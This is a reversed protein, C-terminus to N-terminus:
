HHRAEQEQAKLLEGMAIKTITDVDVEVDWRRHNIQNLYDKLLKTRPAM